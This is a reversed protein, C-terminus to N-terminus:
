GEEQGDGVGRPLGERIWRQSRKQRNKGAVRPRDDGFTEPYEVFVAATLREKASIGVREFFTPAGLVGGSSWYTGMGHATLMLLLNQVMASAAALHEEDQMVQKPSRDQQGYFQPIWTALVLAGCAYMMSPLKSKPNLDPFWEFLRPALEQCDAHWFVHARWPEALDDEGRFYHFPAWGAVGLAELVVERHRAAVEASLVARDDSNGLVKLTKREKIVTAVIDAIERRDPM